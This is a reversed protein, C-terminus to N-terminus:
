IWWRTTPHKSRPQCNQAIVFAVWLFIFTGFFEGLFAILHNKLPSNTYAEQYEPEYVPRQQEIDDIPSTAEVTM